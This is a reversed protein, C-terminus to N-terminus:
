QVPAIPAQPASAQTTSAALARSVAAPSFQRSHVPQTSAVADEGSDLNYVDNRFHVVHDPTAYGTLYVWAVPVQKVLKVDMRMGRTIAASLMEPTWGTQNAINPDSAINNELLWAALDQVKSVRVCGHSGFRLSASFLGKSPTDHMYVADKNPMDIRLTGLSNTVGSDQRLTFATASNTAWNITTPDVEAGNQDFIRIHEKALYGPNAQMHPIMENKVISAPVTWTPNLNISSIKAEVLPSPHDPKGVVAIYRRVVKGAEIAEVNASPINVVVYRPGFNFKVARLRKASALLQHYRMIATVNLARLTQGGVAGTQELGDREQYRKVAAELAADFRDGPEASADLDGVIALRRKLLTVAPGSAGLALKTGSPIVPWGGAEVIALYKQAAQETLAATEATFTPQPDKSLYLEEPAAKSAAPEARDEAVAPKAFGTAAPSPTTPIPHVEPTAGANMSKPVAPNPQSVADPASPIPPSSAPLSASPANPLPQALVAKPAPGAAAPAQETPQSEAMLIANIPDPVANALVRSDQASAQCSSFAMMLFGIRCLRPFLFEQM